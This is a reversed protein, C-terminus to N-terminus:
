TTTPPPGAAVCAMLAECTGGGPCAGSADCVALEEKVPHRSAGWGITFRPRTCVKVEQCTSTTGCTRGADAGCLSAVCCPGDACMTGYAGPPCKDPVCGPGAHGTVGHTGAPCDKPPPPVADARADRAAASFLVFGVAIIHAGRMTAEGQHRQCRLTGRAHC